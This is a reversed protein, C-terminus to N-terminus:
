RTSGATDEIVGPQATPAPMASRTTAQITYSRSHVDGRARPRPRAAMTADQPRRKATTYVSLRTRLPRAANMWTPAISPVIMTALTQIRMTGACRSCIAAAVAPRVGSAVSEVRALCREVCM